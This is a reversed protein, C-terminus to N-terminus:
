LAAFLYFLRLDRDKPPHESEKERAFFGVAHTLAAAVVLTTLLVFLAATGDLRFGHLAKASALALAANTRLIPTCIALAIGMQIWMLLASLRPLVRDPRATLAAIVILLPCPLLSLLVNM